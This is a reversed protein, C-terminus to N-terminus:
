WSSIVNGSLTPMGKVGVVFGFDRGNGSQDSWSMVTNVNIVNVGKDSRLWLQTNTVDGVGGPGTQSYSNIELALLFIILLSLTKRLLIM